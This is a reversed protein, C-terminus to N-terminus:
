NEPQRRRETVAHVAKRGREVLVHLLWGALLNAGMMLLTGATANGGAAAVFWAKRATFLGLLLYTELTIGGMFALLRNVGAPLRSLMAAAAVCFGPVVLAFPLYLLGCNRLDFYEYRNLLANLAAFAVAAVAVLAWAAGRRGLFAYRGPCTAAHAFFAGLAFVPVRAFALILPNYSGPNVVFCHWAYAGCLALTLGAAVLLAGAASRRLLAFFPPFLLYFVLIASVFWAFMGWGWAGPLWFGLTSAKKLFLLPATGGRVCTDVVLAALYAPYIRALRKAYFRRAGQGRLCSFYLGFGSLFFFVDVGGYGLMALRNFPFWGFDNNAHTFLVGLIAFAM